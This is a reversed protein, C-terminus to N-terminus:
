FLSLPNVPAGNRRVELHLHAGTCRGTCGVYGVLQGRAVQAGLGLVKASMHAYAETYGDSSSVIVYNGFGGGQFSSDVVTGSAAAYIPSGYPASIDVAPHWWSPYQSIEGGPLPWGFFGSGNAIFAPSPRFAVAPTPKIGDPVVLVQGEKISLSDDIFNFPYDAIAQANAKYTQAISQLSDGSKVKYIIGTIPPITLGDGPKVNDSNLGTAWKISDVSVSYKAAVSSLTDGDQVKINVAETRPRGIPILTESTNTAALVSDRTFDKPIVSAQFLGGIVLAVSGIALLGGHTSPKFLLGRRWMLVSVIKDKINELLYVFSVAKKRVFFLFVASFVVSEWSLRLSFLLLSKIPSFVSFIRGAVSPYSVAKRQTVERSLFDLDFVSTTYFSSSGETSETNTM